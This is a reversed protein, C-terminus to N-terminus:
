KLHSFAEDIQKNEFSDLYIQTIKESSHGLTESIVSTPVGERKLITAFSHRAVYTTLKIPLNLDEGIQKLIKNVKALIKHLRNAKQIDTQHFDNLIPFIYSNDDIAYKSIIKNAADQLPIIIRKKTKSRSYCIKGNTINDNTLLAMDIFNIGASFYSFSFIDIALQEMKSDGNYSIVRQIDTKSIARKSTKQNIKSVKYSNFPYCERDIIKAEIAMNFVARLHRLRTGITNIALNQKLMWCEYKKLWNTTIDSFPINLHGAFKVFSNYSVDYMGAYRLRNESKLQSIYYKFCEDVNNHLLIKSEQELLTAATFEKGEIKKNLIAKQINYLEQQILLNIEEKNPCLNNPMNKNFDWYEEKISIGLSKYKRKRDKSICLMLPHEGNSLTKSKYCLVKVAAEM